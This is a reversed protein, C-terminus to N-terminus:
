LYTQLTDALLKRVAKKWRITNRQCLDEVEFKIRQPYNDFWSEV